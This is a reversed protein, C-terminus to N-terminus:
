EEGYNVEKCKCYEASCKIQSKYLRVNKQYINGLIPGLVQGCPKVTGDVNVIAYKYGANCIRGMSFKPYLNYFQPNKKTEEKESFFNDNSEETTWNTVFQYYRREKESYRHPYRKRKYEGWFVNPTMEIQFKKFYKKYSLMERLQMPHALYCVNCIFNAEKLKLIQSTFRDINIFVPHFTANIEVKEPSIKGVFEDIYLSLNTTIHVEHFKLIRCIVEIFNPYLFPEGGTIYICVSGYRRCVEEWADEIVNPSKPIGRIKELNKWGSQTYFCYDCKFNCYFGIEWTFKIM